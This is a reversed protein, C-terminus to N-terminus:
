KMSRMRKYYRRAKARNGCDNMDCWRRSRNKTADVFLWGCEADGCQRVRDLNGSILLDAASRAIQWVMRDLAIEDKWGWRFGDKTSMIRSHALGNALAGNLLDLDASKPSTSEAIATFIHYIAERFALASNFVNNAAASHRLSDDLLQQAERATLIEAHRSWAILDAYNALHDRPEGSKHNGVTNAFDLCLDGGLLQLSAAESQEEAM